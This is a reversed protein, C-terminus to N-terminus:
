HLGRAKALLARAKERSEYVVPDHDFQEFESVENITLVYVRKGKM